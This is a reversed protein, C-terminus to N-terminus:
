SVLVGLDRLRRFAAVDAEFQKSRKEAILVADSFGTQIFREISVWQASGECAARWDGNTISARTIVVQTEPDRRVLNAPIGSASIDVGTFEARSIDLAWDVGAYYDANARMAPDDIAPEEPHHLLWDLSAVFQVGGRIPGKIVVHKFACGALRQPGWQARHFWVTDITSDELIIPGIESATFHCREVTIRRLTPRDGPDRQMPHQFMAFRCARIAVDELLDDLVYSTPYRQAAPYVPPAPVEGEFDQKSARQGGHVRVSPM